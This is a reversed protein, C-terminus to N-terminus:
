IRSRRGKSPAPITPQPNTHNHEGGDLPVTHKAKLLPTMLGLCPDPAIPNHVEQNASFYNFYMASVFNTIVLLIFFIKKMCKTTYPWFM